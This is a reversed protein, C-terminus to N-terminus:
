LQQEPAATIVDNVSIDRDHASGRPLASTTPCCAKRRDVMTVFSRSESLEHGRLASRSRSETM